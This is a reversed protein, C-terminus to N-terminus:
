YIKKLFSAITDKGSGSKGSILIVKMYGGIINIIDYKPL